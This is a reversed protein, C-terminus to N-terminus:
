LLPIYFIGLSILPYNEDKEIITLILTDDMYIRDTKTSEDWDERTSTGNSVDYIRTTPKPGGPPTGMVLSDKTILIRKNDPGYVETIGNAWHYIISGQPIHFGYSAEPDVSFPETVKTFMCGSTMLCMVLLVVIVIGSIHKKKMLM